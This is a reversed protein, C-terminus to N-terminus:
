DPLNFKREPTEMIRILMQIYQIYVEKTNQNAHLIDVRLKLSFPFFPDHRSFTIERLVCKLTM